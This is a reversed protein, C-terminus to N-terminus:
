HPRNGDVDPEQQLEYSRKLRMLYQYEPEKEVVTRLLHRAGYVIITGDANGIGFIVCRTSYIRDSATPQLSGLQNDGILVMYNASVTDLDSIFTRIRGYITQDFTLDATSTALNGLGATFAVAETPTLPKSTMIDAVLLVDGAATVGSPLSADQVGGAEFFATKEQKTMGALDIYTQSVFANTGEQVWQAGDDLTFVPGLKSVTLSYHEKTFTKM